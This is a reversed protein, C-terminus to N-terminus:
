PLNSCAQKCCLQLAFSSSTMCFMILSPGVRDKVKMALFDAQLDSEQVSNICLSVAIYDFVVMNM